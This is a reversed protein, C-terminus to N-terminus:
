PQNPRQVLDPFTERMIELEIQANQNACAEEYMGMITIKRNVADPVNLKIVVDQGTTKNKTIILLINPDQNAHTFIPIQLKEHLQYQVCAILNMVEEDELPDTVIDIGIVGRAVAAEVTGKFMAILQGMKIDQSVEEKIAIEAM